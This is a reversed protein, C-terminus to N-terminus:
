GGNAKTLEDMYETAQEPTFGKEEVLKKWMSQYAMVDQSTKPNNTIQGESQRLDGRGVAAPKTEQNNWNQDYAKIYEAAENFKMQEQPTYPRWEGKSDFTGNPNYTAMIARAKTLKDDAARQQTATLGGGGRGRGGVLGNNIKYEEYASLEKKPSTGIQVWQKTKPDQVMSGPAVHFPTKETTLIKASDPGFANIIRLSTQQEPTLTEMAANQDELKQQAAYQGARQSMLTSVAPYLKLFQRGGVGNMSDVINYGAASPLLTKSTQKMTAMLKAMEEMAAPDGTTIGSLKSYDINQMPQAAVQVQGGLNEKLLKYLNGGTEEEDARQRAEREDLWRRHLGANYAQSFADAFSSM